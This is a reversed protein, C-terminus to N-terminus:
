SHPNEAALFVFTSHSFGTAVRSSEIGPIRSESDRHPVLLYSMQTFGVFDRGGNQVKRAGLRGIDGTRRQM